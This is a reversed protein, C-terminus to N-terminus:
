ENWRPNKATSLKVRVDLPQDAHLLHTIQSLRCGVLHQWEVQSVVTIFPDYNSKLRSVFFSKAQIIRQFRAFAWYGLDFLYLIGPQTTIGRFRSDHRKGATAQVKDVVLNKLSFRVNLKVAAQGRHVSRFAKELAASVRTVTSDLAFAQGFRALIQQETTPLYARYRELLRIYVARFFYWSTGSLRKSLAMKTLSFAQPLPFLRTLAGIFFAALQFLSGRTTPQSASLVMLWFFIRIPLKRARQHAAGYQVALEHLEKETLLETFEQYNHELAEM